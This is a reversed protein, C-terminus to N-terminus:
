FGVVSDARIPQLTSGFMETNRKESHRLPDHVTAVMACGELM